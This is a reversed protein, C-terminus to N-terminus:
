FLQIAFSVVAGENLFFTAAIHCFTWFRRPFTPSFAYSQLCFIFIQTLIINKKLFEKTTRSINRLKASSFSLSLLSFM